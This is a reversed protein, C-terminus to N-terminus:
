KFCPQTCSLVAYLCALTRKKEQSFIQKPAIYIFLPFTFAAFALPNREEEEQSPQCSSSDLLWKM